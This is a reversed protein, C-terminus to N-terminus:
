EGGLQGNLEELRAIVENIAKRQKRVGKPALYFFAFAIWTFTLGYACLQFTLSGRRVYEIMYLALGASLFIFYAAILTTGIFEQKRKLKIMQNLYGRSDTEVGANTLLPLLQNTAILFMIISVVVMVIGIKTTLMQPQYHWWIWSIFIATLSLVINERWIKCRTKRNLKNAKMFIEQIDPVRSEERNWLAKFDTSM